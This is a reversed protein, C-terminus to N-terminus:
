RSRELDCQDSHAIDIDIFFLNQEMIRGVSRADMASDREVYAAKWQV